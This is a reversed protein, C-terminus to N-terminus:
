RLLLITHINHCVMNYIATPIKKSLKLTKSIKFKIKRAKLDHKVQNLTLTEWQKFYSM